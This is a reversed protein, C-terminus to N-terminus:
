QSNLGKSMIYHEEKDKAVPKTKFHIKDSIQITLRAGGEVEMQKSYGKGDRQESEKREKPRFHTETLLM